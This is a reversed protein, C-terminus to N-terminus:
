MELLKLVIKVMDGGIEIIESTHSHLYEDFLRCQKMKIMEDGKTDGVCFGDIISSM